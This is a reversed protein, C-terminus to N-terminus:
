NLVLSRVHVVLNIRRKEKSINEEEVRAGGEREEMREKGERRNDRTRREKRKQNGM